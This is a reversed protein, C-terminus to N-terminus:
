RSIVMFKNHSITLDGIKLCVQMTAYFFNDLRIEVIFIRTFHSQIIEPDKHM